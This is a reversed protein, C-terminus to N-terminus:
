HHGDKGASSLSTMKLSIINETSPKLKFRDDIRHGVVWVIKRNSEVVWTNEKEPKSFKQDIFFRGLKKKKRMGLPYFYDGAKWKRIILPFEIEDAAVFVTEESDFVVELPDAKKVSLSFGNSEITEGAEEIVLMSNTEPKLPVIVLWKRNRIIRHSPSRIYSGNKATCLKIIEEAQGHTFGSGKTIEYVVTNLPSSKLLKLVPIHLEEGKEEVIKNKHMAVAQEYLQAVEGFRTINETLQQKLRPYIKEIVPIVQHRFYNRTYKEEANSSDEVWTINNEKAYANIEGRSAFLLPRLLKGQKPQIGKLGRIGTGKCFNMLVTEVNDDSNHATVITTPKGPRSSYITAAAIKGETIKNFWDYRLARAAEQISIRNQEAYEKTDFKELYFDVQLEKALDETFRQDRESEEGRLNFNCHAISFSFGAERCLHCLTVSDIGGSVAILLYDDQSFLRNRKVFEIYQESLNLPFHQPLYFKL